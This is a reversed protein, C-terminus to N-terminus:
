VQAAVDDAPASCVRTARKKGRIKNESFMVLVAEIVEWRPRGVSVNKDASIFDVRSTRTFPAALARGASKKERTAGNTTEDTTM